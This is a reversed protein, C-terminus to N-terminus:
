TVDKQGKLSAAVEPPMYNEDHKALVHTAQFEHKHLQGEAVIGQGERFLDPLVGHYKIKLQQKFDTVVFEVDLDHRKVSGRRVMGGVRILRSDPAKGAYVDSPTYFLNINQRLSFLILGLAISLLLAACGIWIARQRQIPNLM